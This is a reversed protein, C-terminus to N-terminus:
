QGIVLGFVCTIAKVYYLASGMWFAGLSDDGFRMM